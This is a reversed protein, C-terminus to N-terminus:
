WKYDYHHNLVAFLAKAMSETRGVVVTDVDGTQIM